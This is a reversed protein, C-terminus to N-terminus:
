TKLFFSLASSVAHTGFTVYIKLIFSFLWHTNSMFEGYYTSKELYLSYEAETEKQFEYAAHGKKIM